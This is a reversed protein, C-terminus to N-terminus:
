FFNWPKRRQRRYRAQEQIVEFIESILVRNDRKQRLEFALSHDTAVPHRYQGSLEDHWCRLPDSLEQEFLCLVLPKDLRWWIDLESHCSSEKRGLICLRPKVSLEVDIEDPEAASCAACVM